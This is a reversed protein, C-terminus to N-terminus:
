KPPMQGQVVRDKGNLDQLVTVKQFGAAEFIQSVPASQDFGIEVLLWGEDTLHANAGHIIVEYAELGTKGPTLAEKPEYTQVAVDLTGYTAQDIYPPNSVILDFHGNVADFWDSLELRARQELGMEARNVKAVELAAASADVGWGTAAGREALLSLLICGSGTGLDLIKGFPHTLAAEILMETDPRPDLVDRTIYFDHTWFARRHTIQSIPLRLERADIATLFRALQPETLEYDSITAVFSRDREVAYAMLRAADGEPDDLGCRRLKKSGRALLDALRRSM